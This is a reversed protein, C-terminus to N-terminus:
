SQKKDRKVLNSVAVMERVWQKVPKAPIGGYDQGGDLSSTVGTRGALRAGDGISVHDAVGVQGGLVVFDGLECSGSIGVQSVILGHRGIRTNHGIQVLNDIKTGEGIVTDGLAARDVTACAGIEVNDQVIVRGLQPIKIHGAGSSAFGFGPNGIQAGSLIVVGDGLLAHSITTNSGIECNRGITVGRGIVTNPGIRTGDGIEASEGIVAGPALSVSQAIKATPDIQQRQRWVALGSDPYFLRAAAAFAHAVSPCPIVMCGHSTRMKVSSPVFCFGAKTVAFQMEAMGRRDGSYFSLHSPGAGNLSALDAIRADGDACDPLSVGAAECVEKLAFPGRNDYFRPDAM